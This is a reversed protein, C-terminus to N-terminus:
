FVAEDRDTLIIFGMFHNRFNASKSTIYFITIPELEVSIPFSLIKFM